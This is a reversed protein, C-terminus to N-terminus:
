YHALSSYQTSHLTTCPGYAYLNQSKDLTRHYARSEIEARSLGEAAIEFQERPDPKGATTEVGNAM